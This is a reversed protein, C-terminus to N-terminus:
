ARHHPAQHVAGTDQLRAIEDEAFGFERLIEVSHEGVHPAPSNAERAVTGNLTVPSGLGRAM